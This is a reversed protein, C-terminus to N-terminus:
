SLLISSTKVYKSSYPVFQYPLFFLFIMRVAYLLFAGFLLAAGGDRLRETIEGRYAAASVRHPKKIFATYRM